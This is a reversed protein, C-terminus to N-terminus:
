PHEKRALLLQVGTLPPAPRSPLPQGTPAPVPAAALRPAVAAAPIPDAATRAIPAAAVILRHRIRKPRRIRVPKGRHRGRTPTVMAQVAGTAVTIPSRAGVPIKGIGYVVAWTGGLLIATNTIFGFHAWLGMSKYGVMLLVAAAVIQHISYPGGPLRTGDPTRAILQPFRRARTYWRVVEVEATTM